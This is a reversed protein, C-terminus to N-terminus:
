KPRAEKERHRRPLIPPQEEDALDISSGSEAPRQGIEIEEV